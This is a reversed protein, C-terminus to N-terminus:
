TGSVTDAAREVRRVGRDCPSEVDSTGRRLVAPSGHGSEDTFRALADRDLEDSKARGTRGFLRDILQKWRSM